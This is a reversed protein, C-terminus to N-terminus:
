NAIQTAPNGVLQLKARLRAFGTRPSKIPTAWDRDVSNGSAEAYFRETDRYDADVVCSFAM